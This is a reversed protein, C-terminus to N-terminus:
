YFFYKNFRNFNSKSKKTFYEDIEKEKKIIKPSKKNKYKYNICRYSFVGNELKTELIFNCNNKNSCQFCIDNRFDKEEM